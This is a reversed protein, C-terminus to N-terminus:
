AVRYFVSPGAPVDIVLGFQERSLGSLVWHGRLAEQGAWQQKFQAQEQNAQKEAM